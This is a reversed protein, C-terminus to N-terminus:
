LTWGPRYEYGLTHDAQPHNIIRAAVPDYHLEDEFQTALNGLMLFESLPNAYEFSAWAPQGGRCAILWDMYHGRSAALTKPSGQEIDQFKERPLLTFKVNHDDTALIGKSGVILAGAYGLLQEAQERSAGRDTMMTLLQEHRGPPYGPGHHWTVTLPARSGRAPLQWRVVEWRPFSLRNIRSCEAQVRITRAPGGDSQPRWLEAFELGMFALNAAHPGFTGIGGNSFERWQAYGMWDPHYPRFAAPGLWLDWHLGEPVTQTGQPPQERDPGGRDFWIHVEEVPGLVGERILEIGRRFAGSANGPNRISTAVKHRVALDRLARSERITLGLPRECFVHKGARMAAGAMVGHLHDFMSVAVADIRDDMEDLMRRFDAFVRPKADVLRRYREAAKREQERASNPWDQAREQWIKFADPIRRQDPNCLAVLDLNEYIHVDSFFHGAVYMNGIVALNLRENAQYSRAMRACPLILVGAAGGLFGRRTMCSKM